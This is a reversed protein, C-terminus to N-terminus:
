RNPWLHALALTSCSAMKISSADYLSWEPVRYLVTSGTSTFFVSPYSWIKFITENFPDHKAQDSIDPQSLPSSSRSIQWSFHFFNLFLIFFLCSKAGHKDHVHESISTFANLWAWWILAHSWTMHCILSIPCQCPVLWILWREPDRFNWISTSFNMRPESQARSKTGSKRLNLKGAGEWIGDDIWVRPLLLKEGAVPTRFGDDPIIGFIWRCGFWCRRVLLLHFCYAFSSFGFLCGTILNFDALPSSPWKLLANRM